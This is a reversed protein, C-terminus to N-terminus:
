FFKVDQLCVLPKLCERLDKSQCSGRKINGIQQGSAVRSVHSVHSIIAAGGPVISEDGLM